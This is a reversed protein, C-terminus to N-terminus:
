LEEKKGSTRRVDIPSADDEEQLRNLGALLRDSAALVQTVYRRQRPSLPGGAEDRLLESFGIILHLPSRLDHLTSASLWEAREEISGERNGAAAEPAPFISENADHRRM